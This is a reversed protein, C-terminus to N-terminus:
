TDQMRGNRILKKCTRRGLLPRSTSNAADTGTSVFSRQLDSMWVGSVSGSTSFAAVTGASVFSRQLNSMRSGTRSAPPRSGARGDPPRGADGGACGGRSRGTFPRGAGGGACGGGADAFPQGVCGNFCGARSSERVASHHAQELPRSAYGRVAPWRRRQLLRSALIGSRSSSAGTRAAEEGTDAFPRGASGGGAAWRM